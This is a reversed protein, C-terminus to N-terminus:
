ELWDIDNAKLFTVRGASTVVVRQLYKREGRLSDMLRMLASTSPAPSQVERRIRELCKRFRDEDFPKLLYDLAQADFAKLAYREYATALVVMPMAEAGIADVVAFGDVVPMQVDLFVVNPALMTIAEIAEDGNECMRIIEFDPESSLLTAIRTRAWPEDDVIVTRISMVQWSGAPKRQWALRISPFKQPSWWAPLRAPKSQSSTIRRICTSCGNAHTRLASGRACRRHPQYGAATTASASCWATM